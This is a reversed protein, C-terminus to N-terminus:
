DTDEPECGPTTDTVEEPPESRRAEPPVSGSKMAADAMAEVEDERVALEVFIPGLATDQYLRTMRLRTMELLALFTVILEPRTLQAEFLGEFAIRPNQKLVDAFASREIRLLRVNTRAIAGAFRPQDELIAMEGFFDGPGLTAIPEDGRAKRVIDIQGSEIIFMDGGSDGEKFVAAGAAVEVFPDKATSM